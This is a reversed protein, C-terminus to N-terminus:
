VSDIYSTGAIGQKVSYPSGGNSDYQRFTDRYTGLTNPIEFPQKSTFARSSEPPRVVVPLDEETAINATDIRAGIDEFKVKTTETQFISPKLPTLKATGIPKENRSESQPQQSYSGLSKLSGKVVNQMTPGRTSTDESPTGSPIPTRPQLVSGNAPVCLAIVHILLILWTADMADPLRVIQKKLGPQNLTSSYPSHCVRDIREFKFILYFFHYQAM